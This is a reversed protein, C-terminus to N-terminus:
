HWKEQVARGERERRFSAREAAKEMLRHCQGLHRRVEASEPEIALAAEFDRLAATADGLKLRGQGRRFLAKLNGGDVELVADCAECAAAWRGLKLLCAGCNLLAARRLARAREAEEPAWPPAARAEEGGGALPAPTERLEERILRYKLLALQARGERLREAAAAKQAEAYELLAGPSAPLETPSAERVHLLYEVERGPVAQIGLGADGYMAPDRSAVVCREGVCMTAVALEVLECRAGSGATWTHERPGHLIRGGLDADRNSDVVVITAVVRAGQVVHAASGGGGPDPAEGAGESEVVEKRLAGDRTASIDVLVRQAPTKKLTRISRDPPPLGIGAGPRSRRVEVPVHQELEDLFVDRAEWREANPSIGANAKSPPSPPVEVLGHWM